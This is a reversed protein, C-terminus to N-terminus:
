FLILNIMMQFKVEAEKFIRIVSLTPKFLGGTEKASLFTSDSPHSKSGLSDCCTKCLLTKSILLALLNNLTFAQVDDTDYGNFDAGQETIWVKEAFSNWEIDSLKKVKTSMM